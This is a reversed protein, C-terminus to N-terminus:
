DDGGEDPLVDRRTTTAARGELAEMGKNLWETENAWAAQQGMFNRDRVLKRRVHHQMTMASRKIRVGGGLAVHSNPPFLGTEANAEEKEARDLYAIAADKMWMDPDAGHKKMLEITKPVLTDNRNYPEDGLKQREVELDRYFIAPMMKM